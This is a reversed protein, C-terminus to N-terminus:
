YVTFNSAWRAIGKSIRIEDIYGPFSYGGNSYDGICLPAAIYTFSDSFSGASSGNVYMTTTGSSRVIAIHYWTDVSLGVSSDIRVAADVYYQPKYSDTHDLYLTAVVANSGGSRFDFVYPYSRTATRRIWFEITFNAAAFAFASSSPITLYDGTGDFYMSSNGFKKEDISHSANTSTITHGSPSSDIFTTSEDSTDSHILLKTYSDVNYQGDGPRLYNVDTSVKLWHDGDYHKLQSESDDYYVNGEADAAFSGTNDTPTFKLYSAVDIPM